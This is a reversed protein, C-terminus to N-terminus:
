FGDIPSDDDASSLRYQQELDNNFSQGSVMINMDPIGNMPSKYTPSSPSISYQQQQLDYNSDNITPVKLTQLKPRGNIPPNDVSTKVSPLSQEM